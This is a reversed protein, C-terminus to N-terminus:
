APFLDLYRRVEEVVQEGALAGLAAGTRGAEGQVIFTATGPGHSRLGPFQTSGAM